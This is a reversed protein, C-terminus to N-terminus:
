ALTTCFAGASRMPLRPIVRRKTQQEDPALARDERSSDFTLGTPSGFEFPVPDSSSCYRGLRGPQVIQYNRHDDQFVRAAKWREKLRVIQKTRIRSRLSTLFVKTPRKAKIATSRM